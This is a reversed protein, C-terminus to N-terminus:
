TSDGAAPLDDHVRPPVNGSALFTGKVDGAHQLLRRDSLYCCRSHIINSLSERLKASRRALKATSRASLSSSTKGSHEAIADSRTTALKASGSTADPASSLRSAPSDGPAPVTSM